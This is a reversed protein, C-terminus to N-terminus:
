VAQYLIFLYSIDLHEATKIIKPSLELSLQLFHPTDGLIVRGEDGYDRTGVLCKVTQAM